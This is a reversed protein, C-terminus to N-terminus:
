RLIDHTRTPARELAVESLLREASRHLVEISRVEDRLKYYEDIHAYREDLLKDCEKRWEKVPIITRGNLHEKLYTSATRYREIEKAHKEKFVVRKKPDLQRYKKYVVKHQNFIDVQALHENLKSIRREQTKITNALDYRKQHIDTVKDALQVVNTINNEQLFVLVKSATKLDAIKKWHSKLNQGGNVSSMMEGITPADQIPQAYIWDKLKRIRARLQGLQQNTVAILRNKDGLETRIGRREMQTAAVGMRISPILDVGQRKYSRHDVRATHNEKELAANVADSWAARWEEAKTHENWDVYCIKRTKFEGSPLKIREGREDLIYEKRSKAGWEGTETFPRMTLMIHAHPNNSKAYHVCIDVCMGASVFHQEIFERALTINQERTLEIPLALEIERALQANKNKESKEVANWLVARDRYEPPAHEPLLIEKHIVGRKRTYDHERGDYESMIFEAARYAAKAIATAGKGRSIIKISLHYIAM